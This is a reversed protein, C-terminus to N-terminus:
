CEASFPPADAHFGSRLPEQAVVPGGTALAIAAAAPLHVVDLPDAEQGCQSPSRPKRRAKRLQASATSTM